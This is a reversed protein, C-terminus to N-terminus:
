TFNPVLDKSILAFVTSLTFTQRKSKTLPGSIPDQLDTLPIVNYFFAMKTNRKGINFALQTGSALKSPWNVTIKLQPYGM